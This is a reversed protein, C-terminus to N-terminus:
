PLLGLSQTACSLNCSLTCHAGTHVAFDAKCSDTTLVHPCCLYLLNFTPRVM